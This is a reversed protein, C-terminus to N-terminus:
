AALAGVASANAGKGKSFQMVGDELRGYRFAMLDLAYNQHAKWPAVEGQKPFKAMGRTVYGSSFDLWPAPKLDGENLPRCETFGRRDM